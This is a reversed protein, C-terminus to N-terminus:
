GTSKTSRPTVWQPVKATAPTAIGEVWRLGEDLTSNAGRGIAAKLRERLDDRRRQLAGRLTGAKDVYVWWEESTSLARQDGEHNQLKDARLYLFLAPVLAVLMTIAAFLLGNNTGSDPGVTASPSGGLESGPEVPSPAGSINGVAFSVCSGFVGLVLVGVAGMRTLASTPSGPAISSPPRGLHDSLAERAASVGGAAERAAHEVATEADRALGEAEARLPILDCFPAVAIKLPM